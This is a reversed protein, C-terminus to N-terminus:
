IRGEFDNFPQCNISSGDIFAMRQIVWHRNMRPLMSFTDIMEKYRFGNLRVPDKQLL